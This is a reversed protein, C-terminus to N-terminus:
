VRYRGGGWCGAASRDKLLEEWRKIELLSLLLQETM